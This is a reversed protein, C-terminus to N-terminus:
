YAEVTRWGNTNTECGDLQEVQVDEYYWRIWYTGDDRRFVLREFTQRSYWFWVKRVGIKM